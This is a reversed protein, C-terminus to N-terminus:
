PFAAHISNVMCSLCAMVGCLATAGDTRDYIDKAAMAWGAACFLWFATIMM